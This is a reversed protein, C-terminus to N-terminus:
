YCVLDELHDLGVRLKKLIQGSCIALHDKMLHRWLDILVDLKILHQLKQHFEQMYVFIVKISALQLRCFILSMMVIIGLIQTGMNELQNMMFGMLKLSVEQNM